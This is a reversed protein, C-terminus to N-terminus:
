GVLRPRWEPAAPPPPQEDYASDVIKTVLDRLLAPPVPIEDADRAIVLRVDGSPESLMMWDRGDPLYQRDTPVVYYM